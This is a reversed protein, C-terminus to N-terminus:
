EETHFVLNKETSYLDRNSANFELKFRCDLEFLDLWRFSSAKYTGDGAPEVGFALLLHFADRIIKFDQSPSLYFSRQTTDVNDPNYTKVEVYYFRGERSASLDPYGSAKRYGTRSVPIDTEFGEKRLAYKLVTEVANGVENVRAASIGNENISSVASRAAEVLAARDEGEWDLIRKESLNWIIEPFSVKKPISRSERLLEGINGGRRVTEGEEAGVGAVSLLLSAASTLFRAYSMKSNEKKM